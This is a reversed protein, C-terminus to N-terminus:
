KLIKWNCIWVTCLDVANEIVEAREGAFILKLVSAVTYAESRETDSLSLTRIHNELPCFSTELDTQNRFLDIIYTVTFALFASGGNSRPAAKQMALLGDTRSIEACKLM